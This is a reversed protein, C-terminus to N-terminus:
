REWWHWLHCVTIKLTKPCWKSNELFLNNNILKEMQKPSIGIQIRQIHHPDSRIRIRIWFVTFLYDFSLIFNVRFSFQKENTLARSLVYTLLFLFLKWCMQIQTLDCISNNVLMCSLFLTNFVNALFHKQTLHPYGVFLVIDKIASFWITDIGSYNIKGFTPSFLEIETWSQGIKM